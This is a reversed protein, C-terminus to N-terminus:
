DKNCDNIYKAIAAVLSEAQDSNKISQVYPKVYQYILDFSENVLDKDDESMSEYLSHNVKDQTTLAM